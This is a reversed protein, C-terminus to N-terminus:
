ADAQHPTNRQTTPLHQATAGTGNGLSAVFSLRVTLVVKMRLGRSSKVDSDTVSPCGSLPQSWILSAM